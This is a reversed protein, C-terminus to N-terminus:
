GDAQSHEALTDDETVTVKQGCAPCVLVPDALFVLQGSGGCRQGCANM